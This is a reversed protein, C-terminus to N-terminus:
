LAKRKLLFIIFVIGGLFEVVVSLVAQLGLVHEFVLQGTVLILAGILFAAPILQSHRYTQMIPYVMGSVLLGFFSVPGVLATSVAVLIAILFFMLVVTRKYNVGLNIAQERGLAIVDLDHRYFWIVISVLGVLIASIGLLQTQVINFQAFSAAQVVAFEEPDIVRQLFNTISRFLVGLIVGTLVMRYLDAQAKLLLSSFLLLSALLMISVELGFKYNAGMTAYALGGFLFVVSTQILLYLADFGMIYPTLIRNATITQFLITSVSIAYAVLLLASLKAGRFPLIFDWQGGANVTMFLVMALGLAATLLALKRM